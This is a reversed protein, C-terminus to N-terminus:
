CIRHQTFQRSLLTASTATVATVNCMEVPRCDPITEVVINDIYQSAGGQPAYFVLHGDTISQNNLRYVFTTDAMVTGINIAFSDITTATNIPDDEHELVGLVLVDNDTTQYLDFRVQLQTLPQNIRPLVLYAETMQCVRNTSGSLTTVTPYMTFYSTSLTGVNWCARAYVANLLSNEFNEGYPVGVSSCPLTAATTGAVTDNGCVKSVRLEYM